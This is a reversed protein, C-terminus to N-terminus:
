GVPSAAFTLLTMGAQQEAHEGLSAKGPVRIQTTQRSGARLVTGRGGAQQGSEDEEREAAKLSLQSFEPHPKAWPRGIWTDGKPPLPSTQPGSVLAQFNSGLPM